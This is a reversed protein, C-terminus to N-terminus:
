MEVLTIKWFDSALGSNSIYAYPLWFFGKDGWKISWSNQIKFAGKKDDYGVAIVAHGGLMSERRGPMPVIGTKTVATSEFSEYVSFGFVFPFGAYLCAKMTSVDQMLRSYTLSQHQVAHTYCDAPPKDRFKDIIYPWEVETCVGQNAVSKIGDRIMAGSDENITGEMERENFYIFLRSPVFTEVSKQKFQEFLHAIAIANATCSGLSGQDLIPILPNSLDIKVPYATPIKLLTFEQDRQDPLDRKWGYNRKM